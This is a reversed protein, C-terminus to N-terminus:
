DISFFNYERLIYLMINARYDTVFSYVVTALEGSGQGKVGVTTLVIIDNDRRPRGDKLELPFSFLVTVASWRWKGNEIPTDFSQTCTVLSFM